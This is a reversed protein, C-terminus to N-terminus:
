KVGLNYGHIMDEAYDENFGFLVYLAEGLYNDRNIEKQAKKADEIHTFIFWWADEKDDKREYKIELINCIWEICKRQKETM